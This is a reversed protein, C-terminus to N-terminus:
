GSSKPQQVTYKTEIGKEMTGFLVKGNRILAGQYGNNENFYVPQSHNAGYTEDSFQLSGKMSERTRDSSTNAIKAADMSPAEMDEM